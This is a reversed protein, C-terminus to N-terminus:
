RVDANRLRVGLRAEIRRRLELACMSDLGLESLTADLALGASASGGASSAPNTDTPLLSAVEAALIAELRPGVVAKTKPTSAAPLTAVLPPATLNALLPHPRMARLTGECTEPVALQTPLVRLAAAVACDTGDFAAGMWNAFQYPSLRFRGGLEAELRAATKMDSLGVGAVPIAQLSCARSGHARMGVALADLYGNALAYNAQGLNGLASTVSSLLVFAELPHCLGLVRRLSCAGSAKPLLVGAMHSLAMRHLTRDDTVGAAHLLGGLREVGGMGLLRAAAAQVTAVESTDCALAVARTGAPRVRQVGHHADKITLERGNQALARGAPALDGGAPALSALLRAASPSAEGSRSALLVSSAGRALLLRAALLGLGGLGGTIMVAGGVLTSCNATSAEAQEAVEDADVGAISRVLRMAYSEGGRSAIPEAASVSAAHMELICPASTADHAADTALQPLSQHELLLSSFFGPWWAGASALSDLPPPHAKHLPQKGGLSFLWLMPPLPLQLCHRTIALTSEVASLSVFGAHAAMLLAVTRVLPAPTSAGEAIVVRNDSLRSAAVHWGYARSVHPVSMVRLAEGTARLGAAPWLVLLSELTLAESDASPPATASTTAVSQWTTGYVATLGDSLAREHLASAGELSTLSRFSLLGLRRRRYVVAPLSPSHRVSSSFAAASLCCLTAHGITGSYGFSALSGAWSSEAHRAGRSPWLRTATPLMCESTFERLTSSVFPNLRRLRANPVAESACGCALALSFLGLMAASPEGHGLNAKISGVVLPAASAGDRVGGSEACSTTPVAVGAVANLPVSQRSRLVASALSGAEIPDGLSTGTGHAEAWSLALPLLSSDALSARTLAEQARGNPATLSARAGDQRIASGAWALHHNLSGCCGNLTSQRPPSPPPLSLVAAGVAEARAYGDATYDFTSCRGSPSTMGATAFLGHVSPLLMVNVGLTLSAVADASHM